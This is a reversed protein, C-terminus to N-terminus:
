RRSRDIVLAEIPLPGRSERPEIAAVPDVTVDNDMKRMRRDVVRCFLRDSKDGAVFLVTQKTAPRPRENLPYFKTV